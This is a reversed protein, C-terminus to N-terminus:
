RGVEAMAAIEVGVRRFAALEHEIEDAVADREDPGMRAVLREILGLLVAREYDLTALMRPAVSDADYFRMTARMREVSTPSYPEPSRDGRCRVSPITISSTTM